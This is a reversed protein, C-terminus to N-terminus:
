PLAIFVADMVSKVTSVGPGVQWGELFDQSDLKLGCPISARALVSSM